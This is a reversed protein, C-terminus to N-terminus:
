FKNIRKLIGPGGPRVKSIERAMPFDSSVLENSVIFNFVDNFLKHSENEKQNKSQIFQDIEKLTLKYGKLIDLLKGGFLSMKEQLVLWNLDDMEMKMNLRGQSKINKM